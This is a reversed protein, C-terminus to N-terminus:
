KALAKVISESPEWDPVNMQIVAVTWALAKKKSSPGTYGERKAVAILSQRTYKMPAHNVEFALGIALTTFTVFERMGPKTMDVM